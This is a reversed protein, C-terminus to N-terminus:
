EGWFRLPPLTELAEGVCGVKEASLVQFLNLAEPDDLVWALAM